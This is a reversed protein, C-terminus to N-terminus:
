RDQDVSGESVAVMVGPDSTASAGDVVTERFTASRRNRVPIAVEPHSDPTPAAERPTRGAAFGERREVHRSTLLRTGGPPHCGFSSAARNRCSVLAIKPPTTGAVVGEALPTARVAVGPPPRGDSRPTPTSAFHRPLFGCGRTAM